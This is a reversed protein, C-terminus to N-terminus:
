PISQSPESDKVLHGGVMGGKTFWMFVHIDLTKLLCPM